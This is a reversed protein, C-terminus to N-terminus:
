KKAEYKSEDNDLLSDVYKKCYEFTMKVKLHDNEFIADNM